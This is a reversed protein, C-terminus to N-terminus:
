WANRCSLIVFITRWLIRLDLTLSWNSVYEQDYAMKRGVSVSSRGHIQAWGTIGPRMEHRKHDLIGFREVLHPVEPRPGVISMRGQFVNVLQPLEDISTKRLFQGVRTIRPDYKNQIVFNDIDCEQADKVPPVPDSPGQIGHHEMTRFKLIRFLQGDRGVREQSFIVPGPSDLKIIIAVVAFLPSLVVLFFLSALIDFGRKITLSAKKSTTLTDKSSMEDSASSHHDIVIPRHTPQSRQLISM